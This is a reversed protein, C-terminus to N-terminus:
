APPNRSEVERALDRYDRAAAGTSRYYIVPQKRNITKILDTSYRIRSQLVLAGYDNRLSREAEHHNEDEPDFRTIVIGTVMLHPNYTKRLGSISDVMRGLSAVAVPAADTVIFVERAYTYANYTLVGPVPPLDLFVYDYEAGELAEKLVTPEGHFSVLNPKGILLDLGWGKIVTEALAAQGTLVEYTGSGSMAGLALSLGGEPNLGVALVKRGLDALCAGLNVILSTKGGGRRASLVCIKRM